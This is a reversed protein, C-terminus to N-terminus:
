ELAKNQRGKRGREGPQGRVTSISLRTRPPLFAVFELNLCVPHPDWNLRQSAAHGQALTYGTQAETEKHTLHCHLSALLNDQPVPCLRHGLEHGLFDGTEGKQNMKYYISSKGPPGAM